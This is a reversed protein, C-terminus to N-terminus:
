SFSDGLRLDMNSRDLQLCSSCVLNFYSGQRDKRVALGQRLFQRKKILGYCLSVNRSLEQIDPACCRGEDQRKIEEMPRLLLFVDCGWWFLLKSLFLKKSSLCIEKRPDVKNIFPTFSSCRGNM